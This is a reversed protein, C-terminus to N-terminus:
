ARYWKTNALNYVYRIPTNAALTTVGGIITSGDSTSLTLSTITQTSTITQQKGDPPSAPLRLTGAALTGAPELVYVGIHGPITQSFGTVPVLIQLGIQYAESSLELYGQGTFGPLGANNVKVSLENSDIKVGGEPGQRWAFGGGGVYYNNTPDLSLDTFKASINPGTSLSADHWISISSHATGASIEAYVPVNNNIMPVIVSCRDGGLLIPPINDPGEDWEIIECIVTCDSTLGTMQIMHPQPGRTTDDFEPFPYHRARIHSFTVRQAHSLVIANRCRDALGPGFWCNKADILDVEDEMNSGAASVAFYCHKAIFSGYWCDLCNSKLEIAFGPNRTMVGEVDVFRVGSHQMNVILIGLRSWGGSIIKGSSDLEIHCRLELYDLTVDHYIPAPLEDPDYILVGIYMDHARIKGTHSVYNCQKITLATGQNEGVNGIDDALPNTPDFIVPDESQRMNFNLNGLTVNECNYIDLQNFHTLTAKFLWTNPDCELGFPVTNPGQILLRGSMYKDGLPGGSNFRAMGGITTVLSLMGTLAATSDQVGDPVAGFWTAMLPGDYVRVWAGASGSQGIQPVYVGQAPDAAVQTHLDQARWQFMGQRGSELLFVAQYTTPLQALQTRNLVSTGPPGPPGSLSVVEFFSGSTGAPGGVRLLYVAGPVMQGATISTIGDALTLPLPLLGSISLSASSNNPVHPSFWLLKNVPYYNISAQPGWDPLNGTYYTGTNQVDVITEPVSDWLLPINEDVYETLIRGKPGHLESFTGIHKSM